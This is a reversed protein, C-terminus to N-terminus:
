KRNRHSKSNKSKVFSKNARFGKKESSKNDSRGSYKKDRDSSGTRSDRKKNFSRDESDRNYSRGTSRNSGRGHSSRNDRGSRSRDSDRRRFNRGGSNSRRERGGYNRSSSRERSSSPEKIEKYSDLNLQDKFCYKLVASVIRTPDNGDLLENAMEDYKKSKSKEIIDALIIKIQSEKHKIIEKPSPLSKKIM